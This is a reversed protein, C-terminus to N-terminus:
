IENKLHQVPGTPGLILVPADTRAYKRAMAMANRITETQAIISDFTFKASLVSSLSTRYYDAEQKLLNFKAM